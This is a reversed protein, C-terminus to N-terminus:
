VWTLDELTVASLDPSVAQAGATRSVATTLVFLVALHNRRKKM